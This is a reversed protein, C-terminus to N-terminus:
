SWGRMGGYGFGGDSGQYDGGGGGTVNIDQIGDYNWITSGGASGNTQAPGGAGGVGILYNYAGPLLTEYTNSAYAGGGGGGGSGSAEYRGGGGGGGGSWCQVTVNTWDYGAPITVSGSGPTTLTITDQGMGTDAASLVFISRSRSGCHGLRARAYHLVHHTEKISRQGRSSSLREFLLRAYKLFYRYGLM